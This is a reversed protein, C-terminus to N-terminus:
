VANCAVLEVSTAEDTTRMTLDAVVLSARDDVSFDKRGVEAGSEAIARLTCVGPTEPDKRIELRAQVEDESLVKFTIMEGSFANAASVYHYGIWGVFGLLLVGLAAGVIKLKRDVRAEASRGYRGDPVASM